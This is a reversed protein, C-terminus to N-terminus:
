CGEKEITGSYGDCRPLFCVKEKVVGDLDHMVNFLIDEASRDEDRGLFITMAHLDEVFRKYDM